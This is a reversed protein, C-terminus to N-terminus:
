HEMLGHCSLFFTSYDIMLKVTHNSLSSDLSGPKSDHFIGPLQFMFNPLLILSTGTDLNKWFWFTNLNLKIINTTNLKIIHGQEMPVGFYECASSARWSCVYKHSALRKCIQYHHNVLAGRKFVGHYQGQGFRATSLKCPLLPLMVARVVCRRCAAVYFVSPAGGGYHDRAGSALVPGGGHTSRKRVSVSCDTCGRVM